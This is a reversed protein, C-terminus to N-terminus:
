ASESIAPTQKDRNEHESQKEAEIEPAYKEIMELIFSACRVRAANYEPPTM